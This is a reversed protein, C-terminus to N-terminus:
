FFDLKKPKVGQNLKWKKRIEGKLIHYNTRRINKVRVTMLVVGKTEHCTVRSAPYIFCSQM